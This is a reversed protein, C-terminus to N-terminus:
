KAMRDDDGLRSTLYERSVTEIVMDAPTLSADLEAQVGEGTSGGRFRVLAFFLTDSEGGTYRKACPAPAGM